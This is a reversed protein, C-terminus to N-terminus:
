RDYRWLSETESWWVSASFGRFESKSDLTLQIESKPSIRLSLSQIFVTLSKASYKTQSTWQENTRLVYQLCASSGRHLGSVWLHPNSADTGGRVWQAKRPLLLLPAPCYCGRTPLQLLLSTKCRRAGSVKNFLILLQALLLLKSTLKSWTNRRGKIFFTINSQTQM